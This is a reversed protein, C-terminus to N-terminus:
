RTIALELRGEDARRLTVKPHGSLRDVFIEFFGLTVQPHTVIPGVISLVGGEPSAQWDVQFPARMRAGLTPVLLGFARDVTLVELTTGVLQGISSQIFREGIRRGVQRAGEPEPLGAFERLRVREVAEAWRAFSLWEGVGLAGLADSDGLAEVLIRHTGHPPTTM